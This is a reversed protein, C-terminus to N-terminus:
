SQIDNYVTIRSFQVTKQTFMRQINPDNMLSIKNILFDIISDNLLITYIWGISGNPNFGLFKLIDLLKPILLTLDGNYKKLRIFADYSLRSLDTVLSFRLRYVGIPDFDKTSSIIFDPSCILPTNGDITTHNFLEVQIISSYMKTIYPYESEKIFDLVNKDITLDGLSDPQGLDILTKRNNLDITCLTTLFTQTGGRTSNIVTDEFHPVMSYTYGKKDTLRKIVVESELNRYGTGTRSYRTNQESTYDRVNNFDPIFCEPILKNYLVLPYEAIIVTPLLYKFKYTFKITFLDTGSDREPKNPHTDFDFFGNIRAQKEKVAFSVDKINLNVIPATSNVSCSDLYDMLGFDTNLLQNRNNLSVCILNIFVDPIMYAYELEHQMVEGGGSSLKSKYRNYWRVCEDKSNTKYILELEVDNSVYSPKLLLHSDPDYFVPQYESRALITTYKSDENFKELSSILLASTSQLLPETSTTNLTSGVQPLTENQTAFLVRVKPDLDLYELLQDKVSYIVPKQVMLPLSPITELVVTM